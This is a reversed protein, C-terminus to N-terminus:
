HIKVGQHLHLRAKAGRSYDYHIFLRIDNLANGSQRQEVFVLTTSLNWQIWIFYKEFFRSKWHVGQRSPQLQSFLIIHRKTWPLAWGDSISMIQSNVFCISPWVIQANPSAAAHGICTVYM